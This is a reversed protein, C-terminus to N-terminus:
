QQNKSIKNGEGCSSELRSFWHRVGLSRFDSLSSISFWDCGLRHACIHVVEFKGLWGIPPPPLVLAM